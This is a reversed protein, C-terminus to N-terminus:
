NSPTIWCPLTARNLRIPKAPSGPQHSTRSDSARGAKEKATARTTATQNSEDDGTQQKQPHYQRFVELLLSDLDVPQIRETKKYGYEESMEEKAQGQQSSSADSHALTLLDNVLRSMRDAEARTDHLTAQVEEQPLDTARALLDLNCRISTIPARLEHSADAIFRQQRGYVEQLNTLMQNFTAALTSLEDHGIGTSTPVRRSFDRSASIAQATRTLRRVAALTGWTLLWGGCFALLLVLAGGELLLARLNNLSQQIDQESRATQIIHEQDFDNSLLTYVRVQQGQYTITSYMAVPSAGTAVSHQLILRAAHGDWPVPSSALGSLTTDYPEAPGLTNSAILRLHNDLVEVAVGDPALGDVGPLAIPSSSGNMMMIDKGIQVTNARNSLTTDLDAYARQAAQNYVISGFFLLALALIFTYFITLRLQLPLYM